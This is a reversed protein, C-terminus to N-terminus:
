RSLESWWGWRIATSECRWRSEAYFTTCYNRGIAQDAATAALARVSVVALLVAVVTNRAENYLVWEVVVVVGLVAAAAATRRDVRVATSHQAGESAVVDESELVAEM